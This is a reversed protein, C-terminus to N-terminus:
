ACMPLASRGGVSVLHPYHGADQCPPRAAIDRRVLCGAPRRSDGRHQHHRLGRQAHPRPLHVMEGVGPHVNINVGGFDERPKMGHVYTLSTIRQPKDFTSRATDREFLKGIEGKGAAIITLDSAAV